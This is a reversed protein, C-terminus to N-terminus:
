IKTFINWAQKEGGREVTMLHEFDFLYLEGVKMDQINIIYAPVGNTLANSSKAGKWSRLFLKHSGKKIFFPM